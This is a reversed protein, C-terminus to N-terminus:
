ASAQHFLGEQTCPRTPLLFQYHHPSLSLLPVTIIIWHHPVCERKGWLTIGSITDCTPCVAKEWHHLTAPPVQQREGTIHCTPHMTKEWHHLSTATLCLIIIRCTPCPAKGGITDYHPPICQWEGPSTAPPICHREALSTMIHHHSANKGGNIHCTPHM